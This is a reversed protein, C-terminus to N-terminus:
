DKGLRLSTGKLRKRAKILVQNVANRSCGFAVAIKNQEYGEIRMLAMARQRGTLVKLMEECYMTEILEKDFGPISFIYPDIPRSEVPGDFVLAGWTEHYQELYWESDHITREM